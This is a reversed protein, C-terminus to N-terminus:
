DEIKQQSDQPSVGVGGRTQKTFTLPFIGLALCCPDEDQGGQLAVGCGTM